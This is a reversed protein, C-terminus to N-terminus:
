DPIQNIFEIGGIRNDKLIDLVITGESEHELIINEAFQWESGKQNLKESNVFQVYTKIDFEKKELKLLQDIIDARNPLQQRALEIITDIHIKSKKM